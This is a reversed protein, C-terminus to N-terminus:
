KVIAWNGNQVTILIRARDDVGYRDTATFNYVAQSGAIERETILAQRIADRFEQTGPKTTKLAVPIVRKLIQFIDYTAAGFATRSHEGFRGEYSTAYAIGPARTPADILQQEAAMVPGSVMITGEAEKGAIRIFDRTVAGHTQYIAGKFGRERLTIQPLAAATGSGAVLVADPKAAVLKLAQATVSTDARAYREEGQLKLGYREAQEKLEKLWLDGWSDSFGIFGVSKVNNKKMHDFVVGAMLGIPQAMIVTWKEKGPQFPVPAIAFHPVQNEFAVNSVAITPPTVSSGILIDVKDETVLRRANTTAAAPDGADDLQIIKIKAGGLESPILQLTNREPIGLAAAPGTTSLTVGITVDQALATGTMLAALLASLAFRKLM